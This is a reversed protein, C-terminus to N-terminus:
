ESKDDTALPPVTVTHYQISRVHVLWLRHYIIIVFAVLMIGAGVLFVFGTFYGLTAKYIYLFIPVGAAYAISEIVAVSAFLPGQYDSGLLRSSEGRIISFPFNQALGLFPLSIYSFCQVSMSKGLYLIEWDFKAFSYLMCYAVMSMAGAIVLVMGPLHRFLFIVALLTFTNQILDRAFLFWGLTIADFCFPLNMLYLNQVKDLGVRVIIALFFAAAALCIMYRVRKIKPKHFPAFMHLLAGKLSKIERLKTESLVPKQDPLVCVLLVALFQIGAAVCAPIFFGTNEILQGTVVFVASGVAGKVSEVITVGLTRKQDRPTVDSTYLFTGLLIGCTNGCIGDIGYGLYFWTIDLDWYVVIPVLVSKVLFGMTPILLLLKRSMILLLSFFIIGKFPSPEGSFYGQSNISLSDFFCFLLFSSSLKLFLCKFPRSTDISTNGFVIGAFHQYLYQDMILSNLCGSSVSLVVMLTVLALPRQSIIVEVSPISGDKNISLSPTTEDGLDHGSTPPTNHTSNYNEYIRTTSSSLLGTNEANISPLYGTPPTHQTGDSNDM